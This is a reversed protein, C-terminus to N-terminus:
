AMTHIPFPPHGPTLKPCLRQPTCMRHGRPQPLAHPSGTTTPACATVGHNRQRWPVTMLAPGLMHARCAAAPCQSRWSLLRQKAAAGCCRLVAASHQIHMPAVWSITHAGTRRKAALLPPVECAAM